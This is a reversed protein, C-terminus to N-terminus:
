RKSAPLAALREPLNPTHRALIWGLLVGATNALADLLDPQRNPTLGQLGEIVVGLLVLAVALKGRQYIVLQTWWYMLVAYGLLHVLKDLQTEDNGLTPPMLSLVLTLVVGFWGCARWFRAWKAARRQRTQAMRRLLSPTM